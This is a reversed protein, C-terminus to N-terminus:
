IPSAPRRQDAWVNTAAPLHTRLFNRLRDAVVQVQGPVVPDHGHGYMTENRRQLGSQLKGDATYAEAMPDQLETLVAWARHATLLVSGRRAQRRFDDALGCGAPLLELISELRYPPRLNHAGALQVKAAQEAARYYRALAEEHDGWRVLDDASVLLDGLRLDSFEDADALCRLHVRLEESFKAAHSAARAHNLRQWEHLCLAKEGAQM